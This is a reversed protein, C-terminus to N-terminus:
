AASQQAAVDTLLRGSPLGKLTTRYMRRVQKPTGAAVVSNHDAVVKHMTCRNDWILVDGRRWRHRYVLEPRTAHATLFRVLPESEAASMGHIGRMVAEGILLSARGTDPHRRVLPQLVAPARSVFDSKGVQNAKAYRWAIDHIGELERIMKQYVPSLTELALYMNAFMTDGGFEPVEQAHLVAGAAPRTSYTLDTHWQWGVDRTESPKGDQTENTLVFIERHKPHSFATVASDDDLPGLMRTFAIHQEPTMVQEPIVLVLHELWAQRTDHIDSDSVPRSIDLDLLEAGIASSLRRIRM